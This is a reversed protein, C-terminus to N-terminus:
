DFFKNEMEPVTFALVASSNTIYAVLNVVLAYPNGLMLPGLLKEVDTLRV